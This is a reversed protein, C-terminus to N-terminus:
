EAKRKKGFIVTGMLTVGSTFLVALWLALNRNDGTKPSDPEAPPPPTPETYTNNFTIEEVVQEGLTYVISEVKLEANEDVVKIEVNYVTEDYTINVLSNNKEILTYKYVGAKTFNLEFQFKGLLGNKANAIENNDEDLLSFIFENELLERGKLIKTFEGNKGLVLDVEKPAYSNVFKIEPTTATGVGEVTATLKGNNDDEVTVTVTFKADDYTYGNKGLNKETIEYKYTGVKKFTISDFQFVGTDTNKVTTEKPMPAGETIATIVFEFEDAELQKHDSELKKSGFILASTEEPNYKNDFVMESVPENQKNKITVATELKATAINDTVEVTVTYVEGDYTMGGIEGQVERITYYYTGVKTFVVEGFNVNGNKDNTPNVTQPMPAGNSGEIVFEFDGKSLKYTNGESATVKKIASFSVPESDDAKYINKFTFGTTTPAEGEKAYVTEIAFKGSEENYTVTVTVTVAKEDYTVGPINAKTETITYVYIGAKTYEIRGFDVAGKADNKVTLNAPVPANATEAKIVFEFDGEYLERNGELKKEGKIETEVSDPTYVNEFVSEGYYSVSTELNGKNNDTVTVTVEYFNSSYDINGDNGEIETIMFRYVGAKKFTINGFYSEVAGSHGQAAKIAIETATPMVIIADNVAKITNEGFAEIKFKFEDSAMWKRGVLSKSIRLKEEGKLEVSKASYTNTFKLEESDSQVTAVLAGQGNDVVKIKVIRDNDDDYDIGNSDSGLETVKFEFEGEEHFIINGFHPHAKNSNNVTIQSVPMEIGNAGKAVSAIAAANYPEITFKFEDSELWANNERGTFVKEITLHDHGSIETSTADYVNNFVLTTNNTQQGNIKVKTEIKATASNDTAVIEIERPQSDYHVGAISGTIERVIFKYTGPKNVKINGSVTKNPTSKTIEKKVIGTDANDMPFEIKGEEIAKETDPDLVVIEFEFKDENTWDRGTFNKTVNITVEASDAKYENIIADSNYNVLTATLNGIRDDVVQYTAVITQTSYTIGAKKQSDEPIIEKIAVKYTGEKTFKIASFIIDGNAKNSVVTTKPLEIGDASTPSVLSLEFQFEGAQLAQSRDGSIVKKILPLNATTPDPTYSNTFTISEANTWVGGVLKQLSKSTVKLNGELDDTVVVTYRYSSNDYTTGKIKNEPIQETIYYTYEGAKEYTVNNLIVINGSYVGNNATEDVAHTVLGEKVKARNYREEVNFYFEGALLSKGTLNKVGNLSIATDTFKSNYTNTFEALAKGNSYTISTIELNGDDNADDIVVTVNVTNADYTVGKENGKIEAVAFVYTGAKKFTIDKFAFADTAGDKANTVTATDNPIVVIQERVANNTAANAGTISFEFEEGQKMDRGNLTKNGNIDATVPNPTYENNFTIIAQNNPYIANVDLIHSTPDITVVVDIYYKADDYTMGNIRNTPIVESMQYRFTVTNAGDPICDQTFEISPFTVNRGENSTTVSGGKKNEPMPVKSASNAVVANNEVVGIAEFKFEFMGSVLPKMGSNDTYDKIAVPVRTVAEASYTNTFVISDQAEQGQNMVIENNVYTFLQNAQDDYLKQIDYSEIKLTGDGNDVVNVVLRYLAKSYTLGPLYENNEPEKEMITYRYTGPLEFEIQGFSFAATKGGESDLGTVTVGNNADYNEPLPANNYPTIHFAFEDNQSWARGELVKQGTLTSNNPFKVAEVNYTNTFKAVSTENARITGTAGESQTTFGDVRAETVTYTTDPPLSFITAVQGDKLTFTNSNKSLTGTKVTQAGETVVYDLVLESVDEGNLDLTFTFEKNPATLGERANVTKSVELNGGAAVSLKGNNGQHVVFKGDYASTSGEAYHFTPAYFDEATDTANRIKTGEFKLIRNLRPTDAARYLFGDSGEKITTRNLQAGTREIAAVEVSGGHYYVDKYYYTTTDKIGESARVQNKFEKDKYIPMDELIYYFGNSHSPEFEVTANGATSSSVVNAGTYINSYFNITGDANTNKELYEKSIKSKDIYVVNQDSVKTVKSQLGVSYVVRAPLAGNNTHTKVTGDANLTVENVRLPIVSAPIKIVLTENGNQDKTVTVIINSINQNGYVASHVDGEFTYTTVNGNTVVSKNTFTEGAYIIAKVDKVEMYEGIPDTYTIYGSNLPNQDKVETPVEPTSISINSVVEKFADTVTSANDAAYYSDVLNQLATKDNQTYIDNTSPHRVTYNENSATQVTITSMSNPLQNTYSNWANKVSTVMSNTESWNEKPNLTISALDKEGTYRYGSYNSLNTIGMGITYFKASLNTGSIKYNSNIANKMYAGTMLAKFGNGYYPSSGPGNNKNNLPAWWNSNTNGSNGSSYTPAGDSLMVIFPVRQVSQGNINATTNTETALINMGHYVGMQINTGGSVSKTQSINGSKVGVGRAYLSVSGGASTSNLSLYDYTVGRSTLKEYHDLPFVTAATDSFTVVAVRTNENMAMLTEISANVASVTNAIRSLGNDMRSANNSMSGSIDIIFVVDVPAQTQGSESKSTALASYAVLFDEGTNNENLKVTSKGGGFVDFTIDGTYVSKDTWIRGSYETSANDGLSESYKNSTDLDAIKIGAGGTYYYDAAFVFMSLPLCTLIIAVSLFVSLFRNFIKKKM